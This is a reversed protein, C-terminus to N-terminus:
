NETKLLVNPLVNLLVNSHEADKLERRSRASFQFSAFERTQKGSGNPQLLKASYPHGTEALPIWSWRCASVQFVPWALAAALCRRVESPNAEEAKKLAAVVVVVVVAAAAARETLAM